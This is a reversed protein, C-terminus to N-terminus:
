QKPDHYILNLKLEEIIHAYEPKPKLVYSYTEGEVFEHYDDYDLDLYAFTKNINTDTRMECEIPDGNQNNLSTSIIDSFIGQGGMTSSQYFYTIDECRMDHTQSNINLDSDANYYSANIKRSDYIYIGATVTLYTYKYTSTTNQSRVPLFYEFKEIQYQEQGTTITLRSEMAAKDKLVTYTEIHKGDTITTLHSEGKGKTSEYSHKIDWILDNNFVTRNSTVVLTQDELHYTGIQQLQEDSPCNHKTIGKAYYAQQDIFKFAECYVIEYEFGEELFINSSELRYLTTNLLPHVDQKLPAEGLQPLEFTVHVWADEGEGHRNDKASIMLASPTVSPKPVGTILLEDRNKISLGESFFTVRTTIFDREADTFLRNYNLIYRVPVYPILELQYLHSQLRNQEDIDVEPKKNETSYVNQEDLEISTSVSSSSANQIIQSENSESNIRQTSFLTVQNSPTDKTSGLSSTTNNAISTSATTAQKSDSSWASANNAENNNHIHDEKPETTFSSDLTFLYGSSIIAVALGIFSFRVNM